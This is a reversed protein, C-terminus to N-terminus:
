RTNKKKLHQVLQVLLKKAEDDLDGPV